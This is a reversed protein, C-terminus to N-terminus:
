EVQRETDGVADCCLLDEAVFISSPHLNPCAFPRARWGSQSTEAIHIIYVAMPTPTGRATAARYRNVQMRTRFSYSRPTIKRRPRAMVLGLPGPNITTKEGTSRMIRTSKRVMVFTM